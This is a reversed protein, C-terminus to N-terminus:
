DRLLSAFVASVRSDAIAAGVSGVRPFVVHNLHSPGTM